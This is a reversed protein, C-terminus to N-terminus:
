FESTLIWFPRSRAEFLKGVEEHLLLWFGSNLIAHSCAGVVQQQAKQWVVLDEFSAAPTRM